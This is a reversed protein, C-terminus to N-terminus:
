RSCRPRQRAAWDKVDADTGGSRVLDVYGTTIRFLCHETGDAVGELMARSIGSSIQSEIWNEREQHCAKAAALPIAESPLTSKVLKKAAATQCRTWRYLLIDGARDQDAPSLPPEEALAASVLLVASCVAGIWARM